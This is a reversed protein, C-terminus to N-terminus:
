ELYPRLESFIPLVRIGRGPHHEVKKQHVTFVANEWEIDSWKLDEVESPFRLGGYRPLAFTMRWDNDPLVAIVKEIM